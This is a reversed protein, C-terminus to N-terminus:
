CKNNKKDLKEDLKELAKTQIQRIRERTVGFILGVEELSLGKERDGSFGFRCELIILERELLLGLRRAEKIKKIIEERKKNM